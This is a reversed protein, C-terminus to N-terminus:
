GNVLSKLPFQYRVLAWATLLGFVGNILAAILAAGFSLRYATLARENFAAQLFESASQESAKLGVASLPILVILSLLALTLGM